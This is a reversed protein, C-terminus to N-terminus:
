TCRGEYVIANQRITTRATVSFGNACIANDDVYRQLWEMRTKEADPSDAPYIFDTSAKYRFSNAGTLYFESYPKRDIQACAACGVACCIAILRTM